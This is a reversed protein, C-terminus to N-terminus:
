KKYFNPFKIYSIRLCPGRCKKLNHLGFLNISIVTATMCIILTLVKGESSLVSPQDNVERNERELKCRLYTAPLNKLFCGHTAVPSNLEANLFPTWLLTFPLAPFSFAGGPVCPPEAFVLKSFIELSGPENIIKTGYLRGLWYLVCHLRRPPFRYCCAIVRHRTPAVRMELAGHVPPVVLQRGQAAFAKFVGTWFVKQVPLIGLYSRLYVEFFALQLTPPVQGRGPCNRDPWVCRTFSTEVHPIM